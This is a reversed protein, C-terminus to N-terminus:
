FWHFGKAMIGALATMAGLLIFFHQDMRRNLMRVDADVKHTLERVNADIKRTLDRLDARIEKTEALTHKAHAELKAIRPELSVVNFAPPVPDLPVTSM